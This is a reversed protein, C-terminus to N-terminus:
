ANVIERKEIFRGASGSFVSARPSTSGSASLADIMAPVEQPGNDGVEKAPKRFVLEPVVGMAWALEGVRSLSINGDGRLQKTIVSRDVELARAVGAQNLDQNEALTRQLARRVQGVFRAAARRKPTISLRFSQM